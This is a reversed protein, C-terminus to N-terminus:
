LPDKDLISHLKDSLWKPAIFGLHHLNEIVSLLETAGLFIIAWTDLVVFVPSIIVFQHVAIVFALYLLTKRFVGLFLERSRLVGSGASRWVGLLTDLALLVLLAYHAETIAGFAFVFSSAVFSLVLRTVTHDFLFDQIKAPIRNM